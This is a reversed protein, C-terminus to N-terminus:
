KFIKTNFLDINHVFFVKKNMISTYISSLSNSMFDDPKRCLDPTTKTSKILIFSYYIVNFDLFFPQDSIHVTNVM